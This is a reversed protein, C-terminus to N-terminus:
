SLRDTPTLASTQHIRPSLLRASLDSSKWYLQIQVRGSISDVHPFLNNNEPEMSWQLPLLADAQMPTVQLTKQEGCFYSFLVSFLCFHQYLCLVLLYFLVKERLIIKKEGGSAMQGQKLLWVATLDGHYLRLCVPPDCSRMAAWEERWVLCVLLFGAADRSDAPTLPPRVSQRLHTSVQLLTIIFLRPAACVSTKRRWQKWRNQEALLDQLQRTVAAGDVSKNVTLSVSPSLRSRQKQPIWSIAAIRAPPLNQRKRSANFIRRAAVCSSALYQLIM